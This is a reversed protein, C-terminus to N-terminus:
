SRRVFHWVGDGYEEGVAGTILQPNPVFSTFSGIQILGGGIVIGVPYSGNKLTLGPRTLLRASSGEIISYIATKDALLGRFLARAAEFVEEKARFESSRTTLARQFEFDIQMATLAGTALEIFKPYSLSM